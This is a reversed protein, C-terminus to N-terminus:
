VAPPRPKAIPRGRREILRSSIRSAAQISHWIMINSRLGRIFNGCVACDHVICPDADDRASTLAAALGAGMKQVARRGDSGPLVCPDFCVVVHPTQDPIVDITDSRAFTPQLQAWPM